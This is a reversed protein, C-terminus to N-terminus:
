RKWNRYDYIENDKFSNRGGRRKGRFFDLTDGVHYNNEAVFDTDLFCEGEKEPLRGEEIDVKNIDEFISEVHLVKQSNEEGCLVDTMYGAYVQEIGAIEQM